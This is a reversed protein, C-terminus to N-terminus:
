ALDDPNCAQMRRYIEEIVQPDLDTVPYAPAKVASAAEEAKILRDLLEKRSRVDGELADKILLKLAAESAPIRKSKGGERSGVTKEGLKLLTTNINKSGKPRGHPNRREGKKIQTDKPPRGKGVKYDSDGDGSGSM